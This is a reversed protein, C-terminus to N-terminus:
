EGKEAADVEARSEKVISRSLDRDTRDIKGDKYLRKVAKDYSDIEIRYLARDTSNRLSSPCQPYELMTRPDIGPACKRTRALPEQAAATSILAVSCILFTSTIIKLTM